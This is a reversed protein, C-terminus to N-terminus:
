PSQLLLKLPLGNGDGLPWWADEEDWIKPSLHIQTM